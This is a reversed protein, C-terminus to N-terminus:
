HEEVSLLKEARRAFASTEIITLLSVSVYFNHPMAADADLGDFDRGLLSNGTTSL